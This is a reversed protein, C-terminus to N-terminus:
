CYSLIFVLLGSLQVCSLLLLSRSACVVASYLVTHASPAAKLPSMKVIAFKGRRAIERWDLSNAESAAGM